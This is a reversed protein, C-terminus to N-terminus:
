VPHLSSGMCAPHVLAVEIIKRGAAEAGMAGGGAAATKPLQEYGMYKKIDAYFVAVLILIVILFLGGVGIMVWAWWSLGDSSDSSGTDTTNGPSPKPNPIVDFSTDTGLQTLNVGSLNLNSVNLAGPLVIAWYGGTSNACLVGPLIIASHLLYVALLWKALSPPRM